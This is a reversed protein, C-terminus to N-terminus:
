EFWVRFGGLDAFGSGSTEVTFTMGGVTVTTTSGTKRVTAPKNQERFKLVKEYVAKAEIFLQTKRHDGGNVDPHLEKCKRRWASKLEEDSCTEKVGLLDWLTM